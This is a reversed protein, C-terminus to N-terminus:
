FQFYIFPVVDSSAVHYVVAAVLLAVLAQVVAPLDSWLRYLRRVFVEPIWHSVFAVVLVAVVPPPLNRSGPGGTGVQRVMALAQEVGQSRFLVWCLCVFHFTLFVCLARAAGSSPRGGRARQVARTAALVLGHLGGWLVFTWAAGHWLGGLLM